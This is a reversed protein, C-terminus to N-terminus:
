GQCFLWGLCFSLNHCQPYKESKIFFIKKKENEWVSSLVTLKLFCLIKFSGQCDLNLIRVELAPPVPEIGPWPVLIGYVSQSPRLCIFLIFDSVQDCYSGGWMGDPLNTGAGPQRHPAWLLTRLGPWVGSGRPEFDQCRPGIGLAELTVRRPPAETSRSGM